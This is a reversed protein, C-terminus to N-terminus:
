SAQILAQVTYDVQEKTHESNLFIRLRAKREEVAPHIIPNVNVKYKKFLIDSVEITKKTKGYIVPIIGLGTSTGTNFGNKKLQQLMYSGIQQLANVSDKGSAQLLKLSALAAAANMPSIGVSYVFGPAHCKLIEILEKKGAIYGGCSCLTKSLTGMWIDVNEPNISYHEFLGKGTNGLNGLSHAEDVMLFANYKNKVEVFEPLNPIDGDMSYLGEIVILVKSHSSRYKKLLLELHEPSNHRFAYAKAESLKLGQIISNHSTEDYLILDKLGFLTSITSINTAHGSVFAVSDETQYFDALAKELQSHINREGSVLRSASVTTGLERMVDNVFNATDPHGNLSLYNYSSFNIYEENNYNITSNGVGTYTRFFPSDINFKVATDKAFQIQKYQDFNKYDLHKSNNSKFKIEEFVPVTYRKKKSLLRKALSKAKIGM